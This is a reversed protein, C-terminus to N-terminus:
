PKTKLFLRLDGSQYQLPLDDIVKWEAPCSTCVV